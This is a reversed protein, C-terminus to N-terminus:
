GDRTRDRPVRAARAVVDGYRERLADVAHEVRSVRESRMEDGSAAFLDGQAAEGSEQLDFATVGVLRMPRDLELRPLLRCAERFLTASDDFPAGARGDRTALVFGKTYRVKVRVGCAKLGSSRLHRAVRDAHDRLLREVDERGSVDVALTEESGVSKREGDPSVPRDDLGLALQAVHDGLSGLRARLHAPDAAAIDAITVLGLRQLREATRPGVGWLRGIPLPALFVAETGAPVITIGDPKHLDSAVKAVFKNSAVGVSCTLRVAEFVADKLARAIAEPPGFLTECGTLDLFAEDLSIPEVAPSFRHFVEMIGRSAEVYRPMDVPLYVGDPCRRLAEAMPMASRVGFVRAEYSATSVVGRRVPGGIIVPRGVLEPRDRQEVAAYFADMDLHVIVRGAM